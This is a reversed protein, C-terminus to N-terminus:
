RFSAPPTTLYPTINQSTSLQEQLQQLAYQQANLNSTTLSTIASRSLPSVNM